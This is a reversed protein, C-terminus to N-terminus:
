PLKNQDNEHKQFTEILRNLYWHAKLLDKIGSKMPYRWLYKKVNGRLFGRFETPSLAAEIADICEINEDQTYHAPSPSDHFSM